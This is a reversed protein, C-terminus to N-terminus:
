PHWTYGCKSCRNVTKQSGLFGTVINFGRAGTTIQTSGCHPCIVTSGNSAMNSIITNGSAQSSNTEEIKIICGFPTLVNDIWEANNKTIGDQITKPYPQSISSLAESLSVNGLIQRIQGVVKARNHQEDQRTKFGYFVVKYLKNNSDDLSKNLPYGCYICHEALSSIDKGCEPCKILAM